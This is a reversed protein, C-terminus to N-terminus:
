IHSVNDKLCKTKLQMNMGQMKSTLLVHSEMVVKTNINYIPYIPCLGHFCHTHNGEKM